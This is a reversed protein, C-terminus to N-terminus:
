EIYKMVSKIAKPIYKMIDSAILPIEGIKEKALDGALGHLYVAALTAQKINDLNQAVFGAIMGTLVDGVGGSAMGPNGTPNVYIMGDPFAILTRYGKLVLIVDYKKAFDSAIQVRNEQVKKSTSKILRAMEGPHPTLIITGKKNNLVDTDKAIANIGDADIVLIKDYSKILEHVLKICESHITLGPGIAILDKDKAFDLIQELANLSFTGDITSNFGITMLEIIKSMMAQHCIEPIGVTVLGAGSKLASQGTMWAAGLKGASGAVALIEGYNSKHTDPIRPLLLDIIDEETILKLYPKSQKIVYEPIGIDKVFVQGCMYEAPPFIHCWKMEALTVTIDAKIYPGIIRNTDSSLGSPVDISIVLADQNNIIEVVEKYIGDLPNTLGTGFLADIIIDAEKFLYEKSRLEQEESLEYISDKYVKLMNYNILADGKLQDSKGILIVEVNINKRILHRAVVFGDGGNNGKGCVILFRLGGIDEIVEEIVDVVSIGANEMLIIGPIKLEEITIKDAQKMQTSNLIWM